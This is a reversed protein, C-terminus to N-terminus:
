VVNASHYSLMSQRGCMIDFLLMLFFFGKASIDQDCQDIYSGRCRGLSFYATLCQLRDSALAM